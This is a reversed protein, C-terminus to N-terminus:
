QLSRMFNDTLDLERRALTLHIHQSLLTSKPVCLCFFLRLPPSRADSSDKLSLVPCVLTSQNNLYHRHQYVRAIMRSGGPHQSECKVAQM